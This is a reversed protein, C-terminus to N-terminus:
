FVGFCQDVETGRQAASAVTSLRALVQALADVV